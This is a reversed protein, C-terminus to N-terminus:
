IQTGQYYVNEIPTSDYIQENIPTFSRITENDKENKRTIKLGCVSWQKPEDNLVMKIRNELMQIKKLTKEHDNKISKIDRLYSNLVNKSM